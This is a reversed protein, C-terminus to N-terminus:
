SSVPIRPVVIDLPGDPVAVADTSWGWISCVRRQPDSHGDRGHLLRYNDVCIMEGAAVRFMPGTDRAAVVAKEWAKVLPWRAAEDPGEAPALWPHYRGQFRGSGTVRAIPALAGQPYNPESHDIAVSRCFEALEATEPDAALLDLLRRTDIVFSDGGSDAPRECWLFLHDPAYDGFAFGDNHAVMREESPAFSRKRGRADVPQAAVERAEQDGRAKTAEFQTGIRVGKDGMVERGFAVASREDPLGTVIAAGDAALVQRAERASAVRRPVFSASSLDM